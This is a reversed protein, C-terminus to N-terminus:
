PPGRTETLFDQYQVSIPYVYNPTTQLIQSLTPPKARVSDCENEGTICM